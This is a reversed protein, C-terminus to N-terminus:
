LNGEALPCIDCSGASCFTKHLFILGQQKCAGDLKLGSLISSFRRTIYNEQLKPYASYIESVAESLAPSGVKAAWLYLAPLIVNVIMDSARSDGILKGGPPYIRRGFDSHDWWYGRGPVVLTNRLRVITRRRNIKGDMFEGMLELAPALLGDGGTSLLYAMAAIRRTPYNAPRVGAFRWEDRSMGGESRGSSELEGHLKLVYRRTEGDMEEDPDPLLGAAAFLRAEIREPEMGLMGECRVLKALEVFQGRNASFGLADMMREYIAQEFGERSAIEDMLDAKELLREWGLENLMQMVRDPKESARSCPLPREGEYFERAIEELPRDLQDYLELTPIREGNEKRTLLSVGDDWMVVHLVVGNYSPDAHHDHSYWDSANVHIEVEGRVADAGILLEADRFDPGVKQAEGPFIVSLSRGDTTRLDGKFRRDSWVFAVLREDIRIERM